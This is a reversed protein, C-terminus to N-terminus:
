LRTVTTRLQRTCRNEGDGRHRISPARQRQDFRLPMAQM